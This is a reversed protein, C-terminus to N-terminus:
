GDHREVDRPLTRAPLVPGQGPKSPTLDVAVGDFYVVRRPATWMCSRLMVGPEAWDPHEKFVDKASVRKARVRKSERPPM